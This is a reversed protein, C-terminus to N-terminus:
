WHKLVKDEGSVGRSFLSSREERTFKELQYFIQSHPQLKGYYLVECLGGVFTLM